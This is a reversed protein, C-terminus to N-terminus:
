WACRVWPRPCATPATTPVAGCPRTICSLAGASAEMDEPTYAFPLSDLNKVVTLASGHGRGAVGAPLAAPAAELAASDKGESELFDLFAPFAEEGEGTFIYDVFPHADLLEAQTL